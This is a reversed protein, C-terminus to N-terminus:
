MKVINESNYKLKRIPNKAISRQMNKTEDLSKLIDEESKVTWKKNIEYWKMYFVSVNCSDLVM